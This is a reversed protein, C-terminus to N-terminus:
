RPGIVRDTYPNAFVGEPDHEKRVQRFDEFRPYLAGLREADLTNMKGWHPRGGVSAMIAEVAAFYRTHDMRAYQHVAVYATERGHATSLWVDDAAAFRVEVPFPVPEGTSRLWADVERLVDVLTHRPVAYEMERFRVRRPSVFVRHSPAVFDRASIAAALVRNLRPTARPVLSATREFAGLVGNEVLDRELWRRVRAAPTGSRDTADDDPGLRNNQKTLATTTGPFWYFEFHDNSEVLGDPGDLRALAEDLPLPVERAHLLYAPVVELTVTSLVGTQGLGLRSAEFLEPEHTADAERVTGDPGVVRVGRVQTALGGLRAGTGHTGTSIAGAVSQYAIDGLNRMALGLRDLTANLDHLRTGADVTVLTTGDAQPVVAHVRRMADLSLMLGDTVAAGTFSHGAGVARVRLGAGAAERVATALEAEDRPTARRAPRATETRAWNTWPTDAHQTTM